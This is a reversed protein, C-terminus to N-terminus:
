SKTEVEIDEMISLPKYSMYNTIFAKIVERTFTKSFCNNFHQLVDDCKSRKLEFIINTMVYTKLTELSCWVMKM